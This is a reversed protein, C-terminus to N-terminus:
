PTHTHPALLPFSPPAHSSRPLRPKQNTNKTSNHKSTPGHGTIGALGGQHSFFFTNKKVPSVGWGLSFLSFFVKKRQPACSEPTLHSAPGPKSLKLNLKLNLKLVWSGLSGFTTHQELKGLQELQELWRLWRRWRLRRLWRLWRLWRPMSAPSTPSAM